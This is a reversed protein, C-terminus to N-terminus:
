FSAVHSDAFLFNRAGEMGEPGHFHDFDFAVWVTDLPRTKAIQRRTKGALFVAPYEYSLGEKAFYNIDSPCAFLQRNHESFGGLLDPLDPRDPTVSPVQAALPYKKHIDLYQEMALGIQRLNSMCGTRRSSQRVANVAPLLLSTLAGIVGIVVLLELLTFATRQSRHM